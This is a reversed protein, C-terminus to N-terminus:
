PKASPVFPKFLLSILEGFQSPLIVIRDKRGEDDPDTQTIWLAGDDTDFYFKTNYKDNM